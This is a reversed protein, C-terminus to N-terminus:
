AMTIVLRVLCKCALYKIFTDNAGLEGIMGFYLSKDFSEIQSAKIKGLHFSM